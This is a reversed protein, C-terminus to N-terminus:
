SIVHFIGSLLAMERGLKQEETQYLEAERQARITQEPEREAVRNHDLHSVWLYYEEPERM